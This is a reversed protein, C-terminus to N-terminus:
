KNTNEFIFSWCSINEITFTTKSLRMRILPSEKKSYKAEVLVIIFIKPSTIFSEVEKKNITKLVVNEKANKFIIRVSM